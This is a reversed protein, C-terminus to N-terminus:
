REGKTKVEYLHVDWPAFTDSFRGNKVTLTREEGLVTATSDGAFGELTFTASTKGDRMALAFLYTSGNKRKMMCAVPVEANSSQVTAGDRVTASNLVPALETIQRNLATVAALMEPDDLLAAERFTPKFQHVFYILGRSGEILSM